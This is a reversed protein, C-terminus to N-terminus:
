IHILRFNVLSHVLFEVFISRLYFCFQGSIANEKTYAVDLSCPVKVSWIKVPLRAAILWHIAKAPAVLFTYFPETGELLCNCDQM